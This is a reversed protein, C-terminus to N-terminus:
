SSKMTRKFNINWEHLKKYIKSQSIELLDAAKQVNGECYELTEKIAEKELQSLPRIKKKPPNLDIPKPTPTSIQPQPLNKTTDIPVIAVQDLPSPLMDATVKEGQNLVVIHYIVNQLQRVNGPWESM